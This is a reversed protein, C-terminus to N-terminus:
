SINYYLFLGIVITEFLIKHTELSITEEQKLQGLQARTRGMGQWHQEVVELSLDASLGWFPM